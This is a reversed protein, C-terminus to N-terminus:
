AAGDFDHACGRTTAKGGLSDVLIYSSGGASVQLYFIPASRHLIQWMPRQWGAARPLSRCMLKRQGANCGFPRMRRRHDDGRSDRDHTESTGDFRIIQLMYTYTDPPLGSDTFVYSAGAGAGAYEAFILEVNAQLPEGGEVQRLVNFGMIQAENATQWILVIGDAQAAAQVGAIEVGTPAIFFTMKATVAASIGVTDSVSGSYSYTGLPYDGNVRLYDDPQAFARGLGDVLMYSGGSVELYFIPANGNIIQWM